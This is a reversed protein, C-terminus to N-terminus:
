SLGLMSRAKAETMGNAMLHRVAKETAQAEGLAFGRAEARAEGIAEGRKEAANIELWETFRAMEWEEAILRVEEETPPIKIRQVADYIPPHDIPNM